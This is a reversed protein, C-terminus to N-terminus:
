LADPLRPCHRLCGRDQETAQTCQNTSSMCADFTPISQPTMTCSNAVYVFETSNLQQIWLYYIHCDLQLGLSYIKAITAAAPDLQTLSSTLTLPARGYATWLSIAMPRTTGTEPEKSRRSNLPIFGPDLRVSQHRTRCLNGVAIVALLTVGIQSESPSATLAALPDRPGAGAPDTAGGHKAPSSIEM